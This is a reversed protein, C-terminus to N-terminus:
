TASGIGVMIGGTCRKGAEAAKDTEETDRGMEEWTPVGGFNM